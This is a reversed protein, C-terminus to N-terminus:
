FRFTARINYQAPRAPTVGVWGVNEFSAHPSTLYYQDTINLGQLAVEWNESESIWTAAANLTHYSDQHLWPDNAAEMFYDDTWSYDLRVSLTGSFVDVPVTYKGSLTYQLEPASPLENDNPISVGPDFGKYSADLYGVGGSLLVNESPLWSFELELGKMEADGANEAVPAIGREVTVQLDTYDSYFAAGTLRVTQNANEWKFGLEYADVFEPDFSTVVAGPPLRQVFGGGKFGTSYSGYIMLNDNFQYSLNFYVDTEQSSATTKGKDIIQAENPEFFVFGEPADVFPGWLRTIYQLRDDIIFDRDEDTYRLGFTASWKDTFDYTAQGFIAKSEKEVLSGSVLAFMPFSIPNANFTEDQFYYLGATWNLRDDAASGSLHFEQSFQEAEMIDGIWAVDDIDSADEDREDHSEMDRYYSISKLTAWGMDWEATLHVGWIDLEGGETNQSGLSTYTEGLYYNETTYEGPQGTAWPAVILNHEGAQTVPFHSSSNQIHSGLVLPFADSDSKTIDASFDVTLEDSPMWRFAARVGYTDEHGGGKDGDLNPFDVYGDRTRKVASFRSYLTDSIPLNVMAKAEYWNDSGALLDLSGSVEENPKVSNILIAGGITNRGFLTGQPGRLVQISEVDVLGVVAGSVVGLYGEDVYIGVGPEVSALFDSQGVGRIYAVAAFNSSGSAAHERFEVNPTAHGIQNIREFQRDRIENEGFATVSVPTSMLNEARRRAMVTIEELGASDGASAVSEQAQVQLPMGAVFTAGAALGLTKVSIQEFIKM